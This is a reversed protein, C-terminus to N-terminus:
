ISARKQNRHNRKGARSAIPGVVTYRELHLQQGTRRVDLSVFHRLNELPIAGHLYLKFPYNKKGNLRRKQRIKVVLEKSEPNTYILEGRISFYNDGEPISDLYTNPDNNNLEINKDVSKELTSPEWIGNIQLHLFDLDRCRPYVVWFHPKQMDLHRRMLTLVRGLVVSDIENGELDRLCGRTIQESDKPIYIGRVLGIARYQLPETVEPIPHDQM